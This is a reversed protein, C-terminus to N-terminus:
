GTMIDTWIHILNEEEAPVQTDPMMEFTRSSAGYAGRLVLEVDGKIAIGRQLVAIAHSAKLPTGEVPETPGLMSMVRDRIRRALSLGVVGAQMDRYHQVIEEDIAQTLADWTAPNEAM